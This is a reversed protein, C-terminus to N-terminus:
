MKVDVVTVWRKKQLFYRTRVDNFVPIVANQVTVDYLKITIYWLQPSVQQKWIRGWLLLCCIAGFSRYREALSSTVVARLSANCAQV